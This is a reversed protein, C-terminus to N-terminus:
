SVETLQLPATLGAIRASEYLPVSYGKWSWRIGRNDLSAVFSYILQLAAADAREVSSADMSVAVGSDLARQLQQKLEGVGAIDLVGDLKVEAATGDAQAATTVEVVTEDAFPDIGIRSSAKKRPM